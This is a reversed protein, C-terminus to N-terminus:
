TTILAAVGGLGRVMVASLGPDNGQGSASPSTLSGTSSPLAEGLQVRGATPRRGHLVSPISFGSSAAASGNHYMTDGPQAFGLGGALVMMLELVTPWIVTSPTSATATMMAGPSRSFTGAEAFQTARLWARLTGEGAM